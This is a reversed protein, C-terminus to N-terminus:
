IAPFTLEKYKKYKEQVTAQNEFFEIRTKIIENLHEARASNKNRDRILGNEALVFKVKGDEGRVLDGGAGCVACEFPWQIGDWHPEGRFILGSHCNPCLGQDPDGLWGREEVPTNIAQIVHEGVQHARAIQEDRLLVNGPRGNRTSLYADVVQVSQTFMTAGIGELALTQWDHCSGGVSIVGAVTHPDEKVDGIELRFSLEYALFRQAFKLYLSSPTLDYTPVGVIIGNCTQMENVIKDMDDKDKLVCGNYKDQKGMQVNGMQMTCGECGTCHEIHYDFLNIMKVEAGAEQCALLAEKVLIESNGNKRGACIGLVKM